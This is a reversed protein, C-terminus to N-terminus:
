NIYPSFNQRLSAGVGYKNILITIIKASDKHKTLAQQASRTLTILRKLSLLILPVRYVGSTDNGKVREDTPPEFKVSKTM